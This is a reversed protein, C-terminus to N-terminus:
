FLKFAYYSIGLLISISSFLLIALVIVRSVIRYWYPVMKYADTLNRKKGWRPFAFVGMFMVTRIPSYPIGTFLECEAQRFYPPRFYKDLVNKPMLLHMILASILTVIIGAIFWLLILFYNDPSILSM